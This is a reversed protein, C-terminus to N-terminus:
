RGGRGSGSRSRGGGGGGGGRRAPPRPSGGGGDGGEAGGGAGRTDPPGAAKLGLVRARLDQARARQAEASADRAEAAATIMRGKPRELRQATRTVMDIASRLSRGARLKEFVTDKSLNLVHPVKSSFEDPFMRLQWWNRTVTDQWSVYGGDLVKRPADIKGTFSYRIGAAAVPDFFQPTYFDSVLVGSIQYGFEASESPDCVEVLYRVRRQPVNLKHAQDPVKGSRLRRGFPDALMELV